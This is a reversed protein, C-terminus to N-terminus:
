RNNKTKSSMDSTRSIRSKISERILESQNKFENPNDKIHRVIASLQNETIRIRLQHTKNQKM